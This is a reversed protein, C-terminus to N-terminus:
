QALVACVRAYAQEAWDLTLMVESRRPPVVPMVVNETPDCLTIRCVGVRAAVERLFATRVLTSNWVVACLVDRFAREDDTTPSLVCHLTGENGFVGHENLLLRVHTRGICMARDLEHELLKAVVNDRCAFFAAVHRGPEHQWATVFAPTHAAILRSMM